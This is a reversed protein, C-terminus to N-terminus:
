FSIFLTLQKAYFCVATEFILSQSSIQYEYPACTCLQTFHDSRLDLWLGSYLTAIALPAMIRIRQMLSRSNLHGAIQHM